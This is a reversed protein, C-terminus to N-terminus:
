FHRMARARGKKLVPAPATTARKWTAALMSEFSGFLLSAHRAHIHPQESTPTALRFPSHYEHCHLSPNTIEPRCRTRRLHRPGIKATLISPPLTPHRLRLAPPPLSFAARLVSRASITVSKRAPKSQRHPRRDSRSTSRARALSARSAHIVSDATSSSPSLGDVILAHRRALAPLSAGRVGAM